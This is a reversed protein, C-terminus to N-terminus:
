SSMSARLFLRLFISAISLSACLTDVPLAFARSRPAMLFERPFRGRIFDARDTAWSSNRLESPSAMESKVSTISSISRPM